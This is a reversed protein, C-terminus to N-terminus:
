FAVYALYNLQCFLRTCIIQYIGFHWIIISSNVSQHPRFIFIKDFFPTVSPLSWLLHCHPHSFLSFVFSLSFTLSSVILFVLPVFSFITEQVLLLYYKKSFFRYFILRLKTLTNVMEKKKKKTVM